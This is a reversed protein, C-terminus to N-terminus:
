FLIDLISTHGIIPSVLKMSATKDAIDDTIQYMVHVKNSSLSNMDDTSHHSAIQALMIGIIGVIGITLEVLMKSMRRHNTNQAVVVLGNNHKNAGMLLDDKFM